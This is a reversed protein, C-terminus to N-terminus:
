KRSLRARLTLQIEGIEGRPKLTSRRQTAGGSTRDRVIQKALLFVFKPTGLFLEFAPTTFNFDCLPASFFFRLTLCDFRLTARNFGVGLL